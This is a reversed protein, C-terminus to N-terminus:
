IKLSCLSIKIEFDPLVINQLKKIFHLLNAFMLQVAIWSTVFHYLSKVGYELWPNRLLTLPLSIKAESFKKKSLNKYM